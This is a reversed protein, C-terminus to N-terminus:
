KKTKDNEGIKNKVLANQIKFGILQTVASKTGFGKLLDLYSLNRVNNEFASLILDLLRNPDISFYGIM